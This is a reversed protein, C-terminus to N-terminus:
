FLTDYCIYIVPPLMNLESHHYISFAKELQRCKAVVQRKYNSHYRIQHSNLHIYMTESYEGMDSNKVM